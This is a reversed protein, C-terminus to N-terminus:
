LADDKAFDRRTLGYKKLKDYFTKRPLGLVETAAAVDGRALNLADEILSKEFADVRVSLPVPRSTTGDAQPPAGALPALGLVFREAANRVERVNGPWDHEALLSLVEASPLPAERRSRAAAQVLFHQFLLAIDERRRRLPPIELTVVGLRYYLDERFGGQASLALLDRKTAALVRIDLPIERNGGLREVRREQLVRLLRIQLDLPM